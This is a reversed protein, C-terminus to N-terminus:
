FSSAGPNKLTDWVGDELEEYISVDSDADEGKMDYGCVLELIREKRFLWYHIRWERGDYLTTEERETTLIGTDELMYFADRDEPELVNDIMRESYGFFNLIHQAMEKAQEEPMGERDIGNRIAITLNELTLVSEMDMKSKSTM